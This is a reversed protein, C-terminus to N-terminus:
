EWADSRDWAGTAYTIGADTDSVGERALAESYTESYFLKKGDVILCAPIEDDTVHISVDHNIDMAQRLHDRFRKRGERYLAERPFLVNVKIPPIFGFLESVLDDDIWPALILLASEGSRMLSPWHQRKMIEM